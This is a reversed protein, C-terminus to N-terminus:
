WSFISSRRCCCNMTSGFFILVRSMFCTLFGPVTLPLFVYIVYHFYFERWVLNRSNRYFFIYFFVKYVHWIASYFVIIVNEHALDAIIHLSVRQCFNRKSQRQSLSLRKTFAKSWSNYWVCKLSKHRLPANCFRIDPLWLSALCILLQM